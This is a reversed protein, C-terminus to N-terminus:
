QPRRDMEILKKGDQTTVKVHGAWPLGRYCVGAAYAELNFSPKLDRLEIILTHKKQPDM